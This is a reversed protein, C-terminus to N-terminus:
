EPLTVYLTLGLLCGLPFSVWIIWSYNGGPLNPQSVPPVLALRLHIYFPVDMSAAQFPDCLFGTSRLSRDVGSYWLDCAVRFVQIYISSRFAKRVVVFLNSICGASFDM